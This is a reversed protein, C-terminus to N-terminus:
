TGPAALRLHCELTGTHEAGRVLRIEGGFARIIREAAVPSLGLPEAPSEARSLSEIEFFSAAAAPALRLNSLPATLRLHTDTLAAELRAGQRNTTFIVALSAVTVLARKLLSHDGNLNVGAIVEPPEVTIQLDRLSSQVQNILHVAPVTDAAASPLRATDGLLTADDILQRLRQSSRQFMLRYQQFEVTPPCQELVLDGIGVVGNTPTRFEYSIMRLFDDRLRNMEQLRANAATLEQTREAVRQELQENQMELERQLARLRLHTAVRAQIEQAQFPKTVYDVAGLAFAKVKDATETLATTFIVPIERLAPDAKLQQCVEFGDMQPMRIDLLILDPPEARAAALALKGSSLPRPEYGHERLVDALLDLNAPIDDVVLINARRGPAPIPM